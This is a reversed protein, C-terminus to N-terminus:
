SEGAKRSQERMDLEVLWRILYAALSVLRERLITPKDAAFAWMLKESLHDRWSLTGLISSLENTASAKKYADAYGAHDGDSMLYATANKRGYVEMAEFLQSSDQPGTQIPKGALVLRLVRELVPRVNTERYVIDNMHNTM